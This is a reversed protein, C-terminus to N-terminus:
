LRQYNSIFLNKFIPTYSKIALYRPNICFRSNDCNENGLKRITTNFRNHCFSILNTKTRYKIPDADWNNIISSLHNSSTLHMWKVFNYCCYNSVMKVFAIIYLWLPFILGKPKLNAHILISNLFDNRSWLSEVMSTQVQIPWRVREM